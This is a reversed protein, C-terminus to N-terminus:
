IAASCMLHPQRETPAYPVGGTGTGAGAGDPRAPLSLAFMTRLQSSPCHAHSSPAPPRRWHEAQADKTKTQRAPQGAPALWLSRPLTGRGSALSHQRVRVSAARTQSAMQLALRPPTRGPELRATGPTAPAKSISSRNDLSYQRWHPAVPRYEPLRRYPIFRRDAIDDALAAVREYPDRYNAAGASGPFDDPLGYWDFMTTFRADANRESGLGQRIDNKAQAYSSLGGGQKIGRRRSTMVGRASALVSFTALHPRLITNVFAEETQGEVIFNLRISM